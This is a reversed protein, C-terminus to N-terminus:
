VRQARLWDCTVRIGEKLPTITYGLEREAKACSYAWDALFTEVWGPTIQPHVGLWEAKLKEFRGFAL